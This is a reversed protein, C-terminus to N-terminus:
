LNLMINELVQGEDRGIWIFGVSVRWGQNKLILKLVVM